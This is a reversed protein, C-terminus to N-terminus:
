FYPNRKVKRTGGQILSCRVWWFYPFRGPVHEPFLSRETPGQLLGIVKFHFNQPKETDISILSLIWSSIYWIQAMKMNYFFHLCGKLTQAPQHQCDPILCIPQNELLCRWKKQFIFNAWIQYILLQISDRNISLSGLNKM